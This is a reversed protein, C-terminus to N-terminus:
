RIQMRKISLLSDSERDDIRSHMSQPSDFAKWFRLTEDTGASVVTAGDPSQLFCICFPPSSSCFKMELKMVRRQELIVTESM